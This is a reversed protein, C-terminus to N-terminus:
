SDQLSLVNLLRNDSKLLDPLLYLVSCSVPRVGCLELNWPMFLDASCASLKLDM